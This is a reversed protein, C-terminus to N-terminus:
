LDFRTFFVILKEGEDRNPTPTMYSKRSKTFATAATLVSLLTLGAGVSAGVLDMSFAFGFCFPFLFPAGLLCSVSVAESKRSKVRM